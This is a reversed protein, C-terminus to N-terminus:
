HNARVLSVDDVWVTGGIRDDFSHSAPRVISVILIHTEPCTRFSSRVETWPMTERVDGTLIDLRQPDAEDQLEFRPGSDSLIGKARLYGSFEYGTDPEVPVFQLVHHYAINGPPDFDIRLSHVGNRVVSSDLEVYAGPVAFVHWDLGGELIPSEFSGNYILNGTNRASSIAAAPAVDAWVARAQSARQMRILTDVYQFAEAPQVPGLEHLRSWVLAADDLAGEAALSDLYALLIDHDPPAMKALVENAPLGAGAVLGFADPRIEADGEIAIHLAALAEDSRGQRLYFAGLSYNVAPSRPFLARAHLFDREAEILNGADDEALALDLWLAARRPELQTAHASLATATTFREDSRELEALRGLAAYNEADDPAWRIAAKLSEGTGIKSEWAAFSQRVAATAAWALVCTVVVRMGFQLAGLRIVGAARTPKPFGALTEGMRSNMETANLNM